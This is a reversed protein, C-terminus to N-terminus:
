SLIMGEMSAESGSTIIPTTMMRTSEADMDVNDDSTSVDPEVSVSSMMEGATARPPLVIFSDVCSSLMRRSTNNKMMTDLTSAITCAFLETVNM